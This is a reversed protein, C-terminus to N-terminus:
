CAWVRPTCAVRATLEPRLVGWLASFWAFADQTSGGLYRAILLRPMRTIAVEGGRPPRDVGRCSDLLDDSSEPGAVILTGTVTCGRLGVVSEAFGQAADVNATESWLPRGARRIRSCLRLAGRSWREGSARRGFGLIEWGVYTAADALDVDLHMAVNSGDFLINERPLWEVVADGALTLHVHQVARERESRYWKTAGPTTLLVRSGAACLARVNLEDGAAVGGPPHLVVVHCTGRGEPYLAKQVQLPGKHLNRSLVTTEVRREFNLDLHARWGTVLPSPNM